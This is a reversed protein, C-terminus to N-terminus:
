PAASLKLGLDELARHLGSADLWVIAVVRTRNDPMRVRSLVGSRSGSRAAPVAPGVLREVLAPLKDTIADVDKRQTADQAIQERAYWTLCGLRMHDVATKYDDGIGQCRVLVKGESHQEVFQGAIYDPGRPSAPEAASTSAAGGACAFVLVGSTLVALLEILRNM